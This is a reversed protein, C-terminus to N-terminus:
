QVQSATVECAFFMLTGIFGSGPAPADIRFVGKGSASSLYPVILHGSQVAAVGSLDGSGDANPFVHYSLSQHADDGLLWLACDFLYLVHAAQPFSILVLGQRDPIFQANGEGLDVVQSETLTLTAGNPSRPSLMGVYFSQAASAQALRLNMQIALKSILGARVASALKAAAPRPAAVRVQPRATPRATKFPPTIRSPDISTPGALLPFAALATLVSLFRM